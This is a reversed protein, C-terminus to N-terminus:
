WQRISRREPEVDRHSAPLGHEQADPVHPDRPLDTPSRRRCALVWRALRLNRSSLRSAAASAFSDRQVRKRRPVTRRLQRDAALRHGYRVTSSSCFEVAGVAHRRVVVCRKKIHVKETFLWQVYWSTVLWFRLKVGGASFLTSRGTTSM